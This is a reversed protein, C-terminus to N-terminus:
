FVQYFPTIMFACKMLCGEMMVKTEAYSCDFKVIGLSTLFATSMKYSYSQMMIGQLTSYIQSFIIPMKFM